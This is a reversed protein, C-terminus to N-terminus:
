RALAVRRAPDARGGAPLPVVGDTMWCNANPAGAPQRALSFLYVTEAGGASTVAVEQLAQAGAVRMAGRVARTHGVLPRYPPSKVLAVFNALPGTARQNEPSAFSFVTAIGADATPVDNERLAALQFSVVQEPSHRPSPRPPAGQPAPPGALPWALALAAALRMVDGPHM